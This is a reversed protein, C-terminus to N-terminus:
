EWKLLIGASTLGPGIGLMLAIDGSEMEGRKMTEELVFLVGVAAVNGYNSYIERTFRLDFESLQLAKAAHELIRKGGPHIIWAKVQKKSFGNRDLLELAVNKILPAVLVPIDKSLRIRFRGSPFRYGLHGIHEPDLSWEFDLIQVLKPDAVMFPDLCKLGRNSGILVASSSDAFIANGVATEVTDDVYITVSYLETVVVLANAKPHASVYNSATEIGPVAAHCGMGYINSHRLNKKMGFEKAIYYSLAPCSYDTCTAFVLLDIEDAEILTEELCNQIAQKSLRLAERMYFKHLYEEGLSNNSRATELPLAFRRKSIGSNLFVGRTKPSSYGLLKAAEEQTYVQEPVALGLSIIGPNM